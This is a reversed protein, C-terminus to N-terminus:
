DSRNARDARARGGSRREVQAEHERVDSKGRHLLDQLRISLLDPMRRLGQRGHDEIHAERHDQHAEHQKKRM